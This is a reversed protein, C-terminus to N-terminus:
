GAPRNAAPPQGRATIGTGYARYWPHRGVLVQVSHGCGRGGRGALEKPQPTGSVIVRQMTKQGEHVLLQTADRTAMQPPFTGVVRQLGGCEDMLRVQPQQILTSQLDAVAAVEDGQGRVQHSLDQDIM